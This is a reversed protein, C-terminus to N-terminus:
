IGVLAPLDSDLLNLNMSRVNLKVSEEVPKEFERGFNTQTDVFEMEGVEGIDRDPRFWRGDCTDTLKNAFFAERQPVFWLSEDDLDSQEWMKSAVAEDAFTPEPKCGLAQQIM